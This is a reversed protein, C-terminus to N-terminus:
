WQKKGFCFLLGFFLFVVGLSLSLSLSLPPPFSIYLISLYIYLLLCSFFSFNHQAGQDQCKTTELVYIYIYRQEHRESCTYLALKKERQSSNSLSFFLMSRGFLFLKSEIVTVIFFVLLFILTLGWARHISSEPDDACSQFVRNLISNTTAQGYFSVGDFDTAVSALSQDKAM